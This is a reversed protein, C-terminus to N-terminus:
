VLKASDCAYDFASLSASLSRNGAATAAFKLSLMEDKLNKYITKQEGNMAHLFRTGWESCRSSIEARKNKIQAWLLKKEADYDAALARYEDIKQNNEKIRDQNWAFLSTSMLELRSVTKRTGDEFEIVVNDNISTDVIRVQQGLYLGTQNQQFPNTINGSM